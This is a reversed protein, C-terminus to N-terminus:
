KKLEKFNENMKMNVEKLIEEKIYKEWQPSIVDFKKDLKCDIYEGDLPDVCKMLCEKYIPKNLVVEKKINLISSSSTVKKNKFMRFKKNKSM